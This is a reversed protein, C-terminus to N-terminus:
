IGMQEKIVLWEEGNPRRSHWNNQNEIMAVGKGKITHAIIAKPANNMPESLVELIEKMNNGDIEYANFGFDRWKDKLSELACINETYDSGQLKNDDIIVTLNNLKHHGASLAAEWVSGEECEGDGLVVYTQYHQGNYKAALAYGIAISLGHGLAGTSAEIGPIKLCDPHGGLISGKKCFHLLEEDSILGFDNLIIYQIICAHGKSLVFRNRDINKFNDASFNLFNGYYLAVLLDTCSLASSLHGSQTQYGVEMIRKRFEIVKEELDNIGM